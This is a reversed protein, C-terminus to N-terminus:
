KEGNNTKFFACPIIVILGFLPIIFLWAARPKLWKHNIDRLRRTMLNWFMVIKIFIEATIMINIYGILTHNDMGGNVLVITTILWGFFEMILTWVIVMSWYEYRSSVGKYDWMRTIEKFGTKFFDTITKLM